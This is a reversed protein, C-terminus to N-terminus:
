VEDTMIPLPTFTVPLSRFQNPWLWEELHAGPRRKAVMRTYGLNRGADIQLGEIEVTNHPHALEHWALWVRGGDPMADATMLDVQGTM